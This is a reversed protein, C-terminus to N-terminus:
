QLVETTSAGESSEMEIKTIKTQSSLATSVFARKEDGFGRDKEVEGRMRNQVVM